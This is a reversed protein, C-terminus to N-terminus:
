RLHDAAAAARLGAYVGDIVARGIQADPGAPAPERTSLQAQLEGLVEGALPDPSPGSEAPDDGDAVDGDPAHNSGEDGTTDATDDDAGEDAATAEDVADGSPAGPTGAGHAAEGEGASSVRIDVQPPSEPPRPEVPLDLEATRDAPVTVLTPDVTVTRSGGAVAYRLTAALERPEYAAFGLDLLQEVVEFRAPEDGADLVVAILERDDRRASGVLGYGAAATYGTKVGTADEYRLLLENRTPVPGIGPLTVQERGLFPRLEDHTIAAYGLIALERASLENADDLGSASVLDTDAIGLSAAEEDMLALFGPLDGGVHVALAEAADNGSRSLLADLLQEVTWTDGPALGVGAGPVAAVESGVTVEDAPDVREIVTLATLIKVTSAVPRRVDEGSAALTQGTEAELLLYAGVDGGALEPWDEGPREIVPDPPGELEATAPAPQLPTLAVALVSALAAVRGGAGSVGRGGTSPGAPRVPRLRGQERDRRM